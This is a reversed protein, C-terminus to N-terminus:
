KLMELFVKSPINIKSRNKLKEKGKKQIELLKKKRTVDGGYLSGTVDKRRAKITERAIIRGEIAAQIAVSFQQAPLVKKLKCVLAKGETYANKETVVKSFAEQKEGNILIDLKVLDTKRFGIQRFSFSAYGHTISKLKDYFNGTIIDRLSTHIFVLSKQATIFKTKEISSDFNRLIKFISNLYSNPSIIEVEVWPEQIEKILSINPWLSPSSVLVEKEDKTIIKFIVQPSTLVLDLGFEQKLRRVTIEAHLSGLFGCRFGRGLAMKSEIEFDLTPDNLKLKSLADKLIEFNDSDEPYLSLFLVLQPEKYGPLAIAQPLNSVTDGAHVKSPEKVGTKIYGIEGSRLISCPRLMPSFYGVEKVESETKTALLHIKDGKKVEGKFVRVYVTVGSFLDYKSDFILAKLNQEQSVDSYKPSPIKEIVIELLEKVNTGKRASISFIEEEGVGLISALEKKTESVQAQPLDIKNVVGIITLNQKKAQELNFLTQAQIGQSADVLLIAGEVAALARSTEYSFDIHGPTDILNLIYEKGTKESKWLMRCPHMKITIGKEKELDMADLFCSHMKNKDVTDTLELFRDALTSKGHDIHSIIVFNKICSLDM